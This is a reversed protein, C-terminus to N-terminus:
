LNGSADRAPCFSPNAPDGSLVHYRCTASNLVAGNPIPQRRELEVRSNVANFQHGAPVSVLNRTIQQASASSGSVRFWNTCRDDISEGEPIEGNADTLVSALCVRIYIWEAAYNEDENDFIVLANASNADILDHNHVFDIGYWTFAQAKALAGHGNCATAFLALALVLPILLKKM